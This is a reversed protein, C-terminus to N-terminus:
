HLLVRREIHQWFDGLMVCPLGLLEAAERGAMKGMEVQNLVVLRKQEKRNLTVIEKMLSMKESCNAPSLIM